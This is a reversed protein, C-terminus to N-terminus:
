AHQKTHLGEKLITNKVDEFVTKVNDTDTACTVHVYVRSSDGERILKLFCKTIHDVSQEFNHPEGKYDPFFVSIPNKELKKLFLDKKNFFLLISTHKFYQNNAIEEFIRLSEQMRNTKDDEYCTQDYESLAVVFLLCTVSEFCHIWKKRENRQGGVDVLRFKLGDMEYSCEVIGTTKVRCKIIDEYTPDYNMASVRDINEFFFEACDYLQFENRREYASRIGKDNWLKKIGLGLQSNPNDFEKAAVFLNPDLAKIKEAIQTNEENDLKIQLKSTAEILRLMNTIVNGRVLPVYSEVEHESFGNLHIIKLQKFLTSKGSEGSGLLLLKIEKNQQLVTRKLDDAIKKDKERAQQTSETSGGGCLGM